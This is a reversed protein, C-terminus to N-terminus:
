RYEYQSRNRKILALGVACLIGVNRDPDYFCDRSLNSIDFSHEIDKEIRTGLLYNYWFTELANRESIIDSCDDYSISTGDCPIKKEERCLKIIQEANRLIYSKLSRRCENDIGDQYLKVINEALAICQAKGLNLRYNAFRYIFYLSADLRKDSPTKATAVTDLLLKDVEELADCNDTDELFGHTILYITGIGIGALISINEESQGKHLAGLIPDIMDDALIGYEEVGTYKAYEYLFLCAGMRGGLLDPNSVMGYNCLITNGIRFLANDANNM